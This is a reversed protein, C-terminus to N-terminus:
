KVEGNPLRRHYGYYLQDDDMWQEEGRNGFLPLLPYRSLERSELFSLGRPQQSPAHERFSEGRVSLSLSRWGTRENEREREPKSGEGRYRLELKWGFGDGALEIFGVM